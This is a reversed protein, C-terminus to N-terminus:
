LSSLDSIMVKNYLIIQNTCSNFKSCDNSVDNSDVHNNKVANCM